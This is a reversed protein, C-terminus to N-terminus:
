RWFIFLSFVRNRCFPIGYKLFTWTRFYQREALCSNCEGRLFKVRSLATAWFEPASHNMWAPPLFLEPLDIGPLTHISISVVLNNFFLPPGVALAASM